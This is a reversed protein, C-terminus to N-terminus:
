LTVPWNVTSLNMRVENITVSYPGGVFEPPNDNEDRIEIDVM